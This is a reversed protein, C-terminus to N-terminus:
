LRRCSILYGAEEPTCVIKWIEPVIRSQETGVKKSLENYIDLHPM